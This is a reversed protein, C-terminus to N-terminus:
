ALPVDMLESAELSSMYSVATDDLLIILADPDLVIVRGPIRPSVTRRIANGAYSRATLTIGSIAASRGSGSKRGDEIELSLKPADNSSTPM